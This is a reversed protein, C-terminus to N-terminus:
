VPAEPGTPVPTAPPPAKPLVQEALQSMHHCTAHFAANVGTGDCVSVLALALEHCAAM